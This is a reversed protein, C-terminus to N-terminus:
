LGVSLIFWDGLYHFIILKLPNLAIITAANANATGATAQAWGGLAGQRISAAGTVRAFTDSRSAQTALSILGSNFSTVSAVPLGLLAGPPLMLKLDKPWNPPLVRPPGLLVRPLLMKLLEPLLPAPLGLPLPLEPLPLQPNLVRSAVGVLPPLM